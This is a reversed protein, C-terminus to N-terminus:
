GFCFPFHRQFHSSDSVVKGTQMLLQLLILVGHRRRVCDKQSKPRGAGVFVSVTAVDDPPETSTVHGLSALWKKWVRAYTAGAGSAQEDARTVPELVRLQWLRGPWQAVVVSALGHDMVIYPPKREPLSVRAGRSAQKMPEQSEEPVYVYGEVSMQNGGGQSM